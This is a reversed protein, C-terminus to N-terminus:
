IIYANQKGYANDYFIGINSINMDTMIFPLIDPIIAIPTLIKILHSIFNHNEVNKM